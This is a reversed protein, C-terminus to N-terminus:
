LRFSKAVVNKSTSGRMVEFWLSPEIASIKLRICSCGSASHPARWIFCRRTRLQAIEVWCKQLRKTVLQRLNIPGASASQFRRAPNLTPKPATKSFTNVIQSSDCLIQLGALCKSSIRVLRLAEYMDSAAPQSRSAM